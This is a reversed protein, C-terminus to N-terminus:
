LLSVHSNQPLTELALTATPGFLVQFLIFSFLTYHLITTFFTIKVSSNASTCAGRSNSLFTALRSPGLIKLFFYWAIKVEEVEGRELFAVAIRKV